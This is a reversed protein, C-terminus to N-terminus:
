SSATFRQPQNESRLAGKITRRASGIRVELPAPSTITVTLGSNLVSKGEQVCRLAAVPDLAPVGERYSEEAFRVIERGPEERVL